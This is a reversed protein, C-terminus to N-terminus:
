HHAEEAAPTAPVEMPAPAEATETAAPMEHGEAAPAEAAPTAPAEMPAAPPPTPQDGTCGTLAMSGVVALSLLSLSLLKMNM